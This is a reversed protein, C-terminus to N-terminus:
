PVRKRVFLPCSALHKGDVSLDISYDGYETFRLEVIKAVFPYNVSSLNLTDDSFKVNITAEAIDGVHKGDDNVFALRLVHPGTDNRGFRLSAAFSKCRVVYPVEDIRIVDFTGLVNLSGQCETAAECLTFFHVDMKHEKAKFKAPVLITISALM